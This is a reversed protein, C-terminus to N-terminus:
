VYGSLQSNAPINIGLVPVPCLSLHCSRNLVKVGSEVSERGWTLRASLLISDCFSSSHESSRSEPATSSVRAM